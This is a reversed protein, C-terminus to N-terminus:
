HFCRPPSPPPPLSCFIFLTWKLMDTGMSSIICIIVDLWFRRVFPLLWSHGICCYIQGFLCLQIVDIVFCSGIGNLLWRTKLLILMSGVSESDDIRM